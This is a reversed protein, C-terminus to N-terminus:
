FHSAGRHFLANFYTRDFYLALVNTTKCDHCSLTPCPEALAQGVPHIQRGNSSAYYALLDPLLSPLLDKWKQALNLAAQDPTLRKPKSDAQPHDLEFPGTSGLTEEVMDWDTQSADVGPTVFEQSQEYEHPTPASCPNLLAALEADLRRKRTAFDLASSAYKQTKRVPARRGKTPSSFHVGLGSSSAPLQGRQRSLYPKKSAKM